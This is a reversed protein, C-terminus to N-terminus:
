RSGYLQHARTEFVKLLQWTEQPFFTDFLKQLMQSRFQFETIFTIICGNFTQPQLQWRIDLHLFPGDSSTIHVSIPRELLAKSCFRYNFFPGFNLTQEVHVIDGKRNAKAKIWWPLFEGYREVDAVLDFLQEQTYPLTSNEIYSIM